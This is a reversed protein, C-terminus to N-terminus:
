MVFRIANELKLRSEPIYNGQLVEGNCIVRTCGSMRHEPNEIIIHLRHGRWDREIELGPWDQPIAPAIRLGHLDPRMGLIGEIVGVMMTSATGTLWHVQSRGFHRSAKGETFQGYVYPELRRIEARDNQKSPANEAWYEYAREGDGLLAEALILWGQTQSFIGANEKVGPNYIDAIAGPFIAAHYPPDMLVAGYATNLRDHVTEMATEAQEETALHSIISWSQPNLWMNAEPDTRGGISAGDERFGRVFRDEDWCNDAIARREKDRLEKLLALEDEDQMEGAFESLLQLAWYYQFAVFTSEGLAGLRLCDNWDASLGAPMGHQGMHDESFQIARCLHRYVTDEGEDAYPIVESLFALDGSEAIYKYVTPFLWLADDARYEVGEPLREHGPQHRYTVLPLGGGSSLQGSIMLMLEKKAMDPVLHLIGQIDQVTDRYGYGNRQGCYLFSAARSWTFTIFCNYANWTNVMADFDPDPTHVRFGDLKECWYDKLEQVESRVVNPNEYRAQIAAAEEANHRGLTYTIMKSEHPELRITASIAGCPYENYGETNGLDGDVVGQPKGYGNWRGLFAFKDGCWSSVPQGSQAFFRYKAVSDNLTEGPRLGELNGEIKELVVNGILETTSIFRSYQMNVLDQEYNDSNTLEAFGTVTLDRPRDSRNTVIAHWVEYTQGKPVYYTVQSEIGAYDAKMMTYGLGHRVEVRYESLSKQVPLWSASWFDRSENDRLYIYRGPEDMSNFIYRLIRGDAGSKVFSYGGANNSIIAGYEPSGLYNAWPEPTDPRTIVYERNKEDFYGYQMNDGM